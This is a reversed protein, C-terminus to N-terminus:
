RLKAGFNKELSAVIVANAKDAEEGTLTREASRFILRFAMSKKGEPIPKGRYISVFTVSELNEAKGTGVCDLIEAWTVQEDVIVAIDREVGPFRALAKYIKTEVPRNLFPTLEVECVCVDDRLDFQRRIGQSLRGAYGIAKGEFLIEAAYGEALFERQAPKLVVGDGGVESLAREVIGKLAHFDDRMVVAAMLPQHPLQERSPLYVHAVEYVEANDVKHDENTKRVTLLSPVLSTRLFANEQGARNELYLPSKDTWPSMTKYNDGSVFSYSISGFLGSANFVRELGDMVRERDTYRGVAIRLNSEAPVKDYGYIRGVEEILDIEEKIDGRFSPAEAVIKESTKERVKIGLSSLIGAADAIPVSAGLIDKLRSMRLTIVPHEQSTKGASLVGEMLTGGAVQIIVNACRRSAWDVGELDVGREFRYSADSSVGLRKSTVRTTYQDFKASELFVDTTEDGIESELGGMIGALAIPKHTDAIVLDSAKLTHKGGDILSILEGPKGRRVVVKAGGVKSLDFAHLPQGCEYMVYNTADVVNNVSRLGIAEVKSRLWSPSEAVKVGKIVRGTYLPCLDEDIVELAATSNVDGRGKPLEIQPVAVELGYLAALERAIGLHSLWDPRNSTIEVELVVDDATEEIGEVTLGAMTLRHAVEAMGAKVNVYDTLWNWSAKM